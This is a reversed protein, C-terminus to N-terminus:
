FGASGPFCRPDPFMKLTQFVNRSHIVRHTRLAPAKMMGFSLFESFGQNDPGPRKLTKVRGPVATCHPAYPSARPTLSIDAAHASARQKGHWRHDGTLGRTARRHHENACQLRPNWVQGFPTSRRRACNWRQWRLICALPGRVLAFPMSKSLTTVANVRKNTFM